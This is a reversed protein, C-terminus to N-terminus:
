EEPPSDIHGIESRRKIFLGIGSLLLVLGLLPASAAIQHPLFALALVFMTALLGMVLAGTLTAVLTTVFLERVVQFLTTFVSESTHPVQETM